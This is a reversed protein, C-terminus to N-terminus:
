KDDDKRFQIIRAINNGPSNVEVDMKDIEAPGISKADSTSQSSVVFLPAGARQEELKEKRLRQQEAERQEALLDYVADATEAWGEIVSFFSNMQRFAECAKELGDVDIIRRIIRVVDDQTINLTSTIPTGTTM